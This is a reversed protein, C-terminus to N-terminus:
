KGSYQADTVKEMWTVSKGDLQEVVSIHTLATDPAAGHWHKVGAPCIIVDGAKIEQIPAGWEQTRGVGSTVILAQGLPHTHWASRAGPEFTVYAGSTHAPATPPFLPDLRVTGTFNAEPAQASAQSGSRLITQSNTNKEAAMAQGGFVSASVLLSLCLFLKAFKMKRDENFLKFIRKAENRLCISGGTQIRYVCDL